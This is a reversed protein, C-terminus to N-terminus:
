FGRIRSVELKNVVAVLDNGEIRMKDFKHKIQFNANINVDKMNIEPVGKGAMRIMNVYIENGKAKNSWDFIPVFFKDFENNKMMELTEKYKESQPYPIVFERKHVIGAEENPNGDGTWGGTRFTPKAAELLGLITGITLLAAPVGFVGLQSVYAAMIQPTYITIMQQAIEFANALMMKGFKEFTVDGTAILQGLGKGINLLGDNIVKNREEAQKKQKEDSVGLKATGEDTKVVLDYIKAYGGVANELAEKQEKIIQKHRSMLEVTKNSSNNMGKIAEESKKLESGYEAAHLSLKLWDRMMESFGDVANKVVDDTIVSKLLEDNANELLKNSEDILEQFAGTGLEFDVQLKLLDMQKNKEIEAKRMEVIQKFLNNKEITSTAEAWAEMLESVTKKQDKLGDNLETVPPKANETNVKFNKLHTNLNSYFEFEKSDSKGAKKLESLKKTVSEITLKKEKAYKIAEAESKNIKNNLDEFEKETELLKEYEDNLPAIKKKQKDVRENAEDVSSFLNTFWSVAGKVTETLSNIVDAVAPIYEGFKKLSNYALGIPNLWNLFFSIVESLIGVLYNFAKVIGDWIEVSLKKLWQWVSQVVNRFAESNQYAYVIVGILVTLATVVLGIPNANLVANLMQQAVTYIKTAVTTAIVVGKTTVFSYALYTLVPILISLNDTLFGITNSVALLGTKIASIGAQVPASNFITILLNGLKVVLPMIARYGEMFLAIINNKVSTMQVEISQSAIEFAKSSAGGQVEQLVNGFTQLSKAAIESSGALSQIIKAAEVRGTLQALQMGSKDAAVQIERMVNILGGGEKAPKKLKERLTELDTGSIKLAKSLNSNGKQLLTLVANIQTGVQATPTGMATYESIIAGAEEFSVGMASAMPVFSALSSNLENFSTKGLKIAAFFVDSVREADKAEMGYANIVSTLGDVATATDSMGAVGARSAVGVFQSIEEATGKVGASIAQYTANAVTASTDILGKALDVSLKNFKEFEKFGLTGINKVQKDLERYEQGAQQALGIVSNFAQFIVNGAFVGTVANRFGESFMKGFKSGQKGVESASKSFDKTDLRLKLLIENLNAM